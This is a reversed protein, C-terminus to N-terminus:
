ADSWHGYAAAQGRLTGSTDVLQWMTVDEIWFRRGSRATRLGRYGTAFGKRTVAEILRQREAQDSPAASQRSPLCTIEHWGYGFCVQAIRNAYVFRPDAAVNHVLLCFPAQEYLWRAAAAPDLGSPVLENRLRERYTRTLLGVFGLDRALAIDSPGPSDPDLGSIDTPPPVPVNM